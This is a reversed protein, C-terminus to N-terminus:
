RDGIRFEDRASLRPLSGLLRVRWSLRIGIVVLRERANLDAVLFRADVAEQLAKGSVSAIQDVRGKLTSSSWLAVGGIAMATVVVSGFGAFLKKSISWHKM